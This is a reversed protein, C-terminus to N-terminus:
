GEQPPGVPQGDDDTDNVPTAGAMPEVYSGDAPDEVPLPAPDEATPDIVDGTDTAGDPVDGAPQEPQEPQEAPTPESV